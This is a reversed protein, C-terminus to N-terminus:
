AEGGSASAAASAFPPLTEWANRYPQLNLGSCRVEDGRFSFTLKLAGENETGLGDTMRFENLRTRRILLFDVWKDDLRAAFIYYLPPVDRHRLQELSLNFQASYGGETKLRKANATKVQIHTVEADGDRFALVDEGVDVEPVAVNCMRHLLEAKVANQGSHGTYLDKISRPM